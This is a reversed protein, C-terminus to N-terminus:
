HEWTESGKEYRIYFKDPSTEKFFEKELVSEEGCFSEKKLEVFQWKPMNAIESVFFRHKLKTAPEEGVRYVLRNEFVVPSNDEEFSLSSIQKRKPYLLLDCDRIRASYISFESVMKSTKPPICVVEEEPFSVSNSQSTSLATALQASVGGTILWGAYDVGTVSKSASASKSGGVSTGTSYTFVRQQYYDKAQGNLVFYSKGLDLYLPQNTKNEVSFSMDGSEGWFNYSVLCKDDEYVLYDGRRKVEENITGTEFVQYYVKPSCSSFFLMVAFFPIM